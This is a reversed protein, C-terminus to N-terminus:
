GELNPRKGELRELIWQNFKYPLHEQPSYVGVKHARSQLGKQVEECIDWDQRLVTDLFEVTDSPDFGSADITEPEFLWEVILRTEKPGVPWKTFTFVHDPLLGLFLNPYITLSRFRGADEETTNSISPRNSRAHEAFTNGGEILLAGDPNEQGIIGTGFSPVIQCLEPHVGPCHCCEVNNELVIKWNAKVDYVERHAARLNALNYHAMKGALEGLEPEFPEPADSLNILIFGQWLEVAVPYLPFDERSFGEADVMNPTAILGGDLAYTWGHYRCAVAGGKFRGSGGNCLRNGRHRCVNYFANIEHAKDRVILISEDAVTRVLYDGPNLIEDTRGACIWSSYFIREKEQEYVETDWYYRSPLTPM